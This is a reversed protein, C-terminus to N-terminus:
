YPVIKTVESVVSDGEADTITQKVTAPTLPEPISGWSRINGNKYWMVNLPELNITGIGGIDGYPLIEPRLKEWPADNAFPDGTYNYDLREVAKYGRIKFLYTNDPDNIYLVQSTIQNFPGNAVGLPGCDVGQIKTDKDSVTSIVHTSTFSFAAIRGNSSTANENLIILSDNDIDYEYVKTQSHWLIRNTKEHYTLGKYYHGDNTFSDSPEGNVKRTTTISTDTFDPYGYADAPINTHSYLGESYWGSYYIGDKDTIFGTCASSAPAPAHLHSYERYSLEPTFNKEDLGIYMFQQTQDEYGSSGGQYNYVDIIIKKGQYISSKLGFANNIGVKPDNAYEETFIQTPIDLSLIGQKEAKDLTSTTGMAVYPTGNLIAASTALKGLSVRSIQLDAIEFDYETKLEYPLTGNEATMDASIAILRRSDIDWEVETVTKLVPVVLEKFQAGTVSYTAGDSGTCAFLDTDKIKSIDIAM